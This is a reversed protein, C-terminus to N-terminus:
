SKNRNIIAIVGIVVPVLGMYIKVFLSILSRTGADQKGVTSIAIVLLIGLIVWIFSIVFKIKKQISVKRM